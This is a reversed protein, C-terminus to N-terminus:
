QIINEIAVTPTFSGCLNSIILIQQQETRGQMIPIRTWLEAMICGVGWMDIAPGYKTEGLLLEINLLYRM